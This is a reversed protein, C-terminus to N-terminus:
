GELGSEFPVATLPVSGFPVMGFARIMRNLFLGRSIAAGISVDALRM